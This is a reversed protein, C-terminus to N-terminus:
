CFVFIIGDAVLSCFMVDLSKLLLLFGGSDGHWRLFSMTRMTKVDRMACDDADNFSLRSCNVVPGGGVAIIAAGTSPLLNM